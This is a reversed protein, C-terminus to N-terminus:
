DATFSLALGAVSAGLAALAFTEGAGATPRDPTYRGLSPDFVNAGNTPPHAIAHLIFALAVALGALLVLRGARGGLLASALLGAALLALLVDAASYVQWATPDRPVGRLVESSGWQALFARSFQHSWTLFLSGLLGFAGLLLLWDAATERRRRTM